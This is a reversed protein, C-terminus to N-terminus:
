IQSTTIGSFYCINISCDTPEAPTTPRGLDSFTELAAVKRGSKTCEDSQYTSHKAFAGYSTSYVRFANLRRRRFAFLVMGSTPNPQTPNSSDTYHMTWMPISRRQTGSHSPGHPRSSWRVCLMLSRRESRIPVRMKDLSEVGGDSRPPFRCM